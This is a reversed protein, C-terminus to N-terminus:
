RVNITVPAELMVAEGGGCEAGTNFHAIATIRWQGPPLRFTPEDFFARYFSAHPDEDTFGGSKRYPSRIPDRPGITYTRCDLHWAADMHRDGTLEEVSFFIVGSGSATLTVQQLPGSYTLVAGIEIADAATWTARPSASVLTFDGQHAVARLEAPRSCGVTIAALLLGIGVRAATAVV